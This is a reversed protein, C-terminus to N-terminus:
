INYYENMFDIIEDVDEISFGTHLSIMESSFGNLYLVYVKKRLEPYIFTPFIYDSMAM